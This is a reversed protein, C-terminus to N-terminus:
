GDLKTGKVVLVQYTTTYIMNKFRDPYKLIRRCRNRHYALYREAERLTMGPIKEKATRPTEVGDGIDDLRNQLFELYQRFGKDTWKQLHAYGFSKADIDTLGAEAFLHPMRPGVYKKSGRVFSAKRRKRSLMETMFRYETETYGPMFDNRGDTQYVPEIAAVAGGPATVRVMEGIIAAPEFVNVFLTMAATLDFRRDPFRMAAADMRQYKVRSGNERSIKRASRLLDPDIDIGVIEEAASTQQELLRALYGLGCAVDLIRRRPRIDLFRFLVPLFDPDWFQERSRRLYEETWVRESVINDKRM